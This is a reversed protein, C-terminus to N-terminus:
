KNRLEKLKNKQEESLLSYIKDQTEKKIEQVKERAQEFVKRTQIKATELLEKIKEKQESTLELKKLARELLQQKGMFRLSKKERLHPSKAPLISRRINEIKQRFIQQQIVMGTIVGLLAFIGVLCSVLIVERKM